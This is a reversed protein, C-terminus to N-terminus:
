IRSLIQEMRPHRQQDAPTFRVISIGVAGELKGIIEELATIEDEEFRDSQTLDGTVIIKSADGMRTLFRKLQKYTADQGEDIIIVSNKFTRGKIMALPVMEIIPRKGTAFTNLQEDTFFECLEDTLPRLYPGIKKELEGPLFGVEEDCSVIPRVMIIREAWGRSLYTAAVGVALHTKGTGAPGVCITIDNHHIAQIYAKQNQTRGHVPRKLEKNPVQPKKIIEGLNPLVTHGNNGNRSFRRTKSM